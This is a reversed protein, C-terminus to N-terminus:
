KEHSILVINTKENSYGMLIKLMQFTYIHLTNYSALTFYIRYIVLKVILRKRCMISQNITLSTDNNDQVTTVRVEHSNESVTDEQRSM